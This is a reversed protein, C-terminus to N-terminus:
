DIFAVNRMTETETETNLVVRHWESLSITAHDAVKRVTAPELSIAEKMRMGKMQTRNAVRVECAGSSGIDQRATM